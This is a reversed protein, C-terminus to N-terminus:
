YNDVLDAIYRCRLMKLANSYCNKCHFRLLSKQIDTPSCTVLQYLTFITKCWCHKMIHHSIIYTRYSVIRYSINYIIHYSIHYSIYNVSIQNVDRPLYFLVCKCVLLVCFLPFLVYM